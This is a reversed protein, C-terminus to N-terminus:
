AARRIELREPEHLLKRAATLVQAPYIRAMCQNDNCRSEKQNALNLCPSCPLSASLGIAPAGIPLTSNPSEPGFLGIVPTGAWGALHMVASDVSIVLDADRLLQLLEPVSTKGSLDVIRKGYGARLPRTITQVRFRENEAGTFYLRVGPYTDLLIRALGVWYEQPWLRQWSLDSANINFVIRHPTGPNSRGHLPHAGAVRPLHLADAFLIFNNSLHREESYSVLKTFNSERLPKGALFGLRLPARTWAALLASFNATPELDIVCEPRTRALWALTRFADQIFGKRDTRIIKVEDVAHISKAFEAPASFSVLTVRIGASRLSQFLPLALVTSGLGLFKLIVVEKPRAPAEANRRGPPALLGQFLRMVLLLPVGLWHDIKRMLSITM